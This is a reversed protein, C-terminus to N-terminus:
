RSPARGDGSLRARAVEPDPDVALLERTGTLDILRAVPGDGPCAVGLRGGVIRLERAAGVLARLGTSDCFQVRSLDVLVRLVGDTRAADIRRALAPAGALDLEGSLALVHVDGADSEDIQLTRGPV